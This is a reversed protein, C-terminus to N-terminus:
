QWLKMFNLKSPPPPILEGHGPFPYYYHLNFQFNKEGDCRFKQKKQKPKEPWCRQGPTTPQHVAYLLLFTRKRLSIKEEARQSRLVQAPSFAQREPFNGKNAVPQQGSGTSHPFARGEGLQQKHHPVSCSAMLLLLLPLLRPMDQKVFIVSVLDGM